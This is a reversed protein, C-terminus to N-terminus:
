YKQTQAEDKKASYDYSCIPDFWGFGLMRSSFCLINIFYICSDSLYHSCSLWPEVELNKKIWNLEPFPNFIQMELLKEPPALM